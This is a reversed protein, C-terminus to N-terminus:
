IHSSSSPCSDPLPDVCIDGCSSCCNHPWLCGDGYKEAVTHHLTDASRGCETCASLLNLNDRGTQAKVLTSSIQGVLWSDTAQPDCQLVRMNSSKCLFINVGQIWIAEREAHQVIQLDASNDILYRCGSQFILWYCMSKVHWHKGNKSRSWYHVMYTCRQWRM